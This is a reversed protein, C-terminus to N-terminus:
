QTYFAGLDKKQLFDNLRDMLYRFRENSKKEYPYIFEVFKTPGLKELLKYEVPPIM